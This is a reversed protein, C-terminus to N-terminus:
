FNYVYIIVDTLVDGAGHSQGYIVTGKTDAANIDTASLGEGDIRKSLELAIKRPLYGIKMKVIRDNSDQLDIVGDGDFDWKTVNGDIVGIGLFTYLPNTTGIAIKDVIRGEMFGQAVLEADLTKSYTIANGNRDVLNGKKAICMAIASKTADYTKIIANIKSDLIADFVKPILMSFLIALIAIVGIMELLTFGSKTREKSINKM